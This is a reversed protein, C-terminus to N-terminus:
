YGVIGRIRDKHAGYHYSAVLAALSGPLAWLAEGLGPPNAPPIGPHPLLFGSILAGSVAALFAGVIGGCFRDPVLVAFHWCAIGIMAWVVLRLGM